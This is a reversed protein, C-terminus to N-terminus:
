DLGNLRRRLNERLDRIGLRPSGSGVSGSVARSAAKAKKVTQTQTKIQTAAELKGALSSFVPDGKVVYNYATELIEQPSGAQQQTLASVIPAMKEELQAATQADTATFLPKSQMFSQVTALNQQAVYNQQQENIMAQIKSEAVREAEERTLYEPTEPEPPYYGELQGQSAAYLDDIRLGYGDLWELATQIPNDKMALDWEISRETLKEPTLGLEQYEKEHKQYVKHVGETEARMRDVEARKRDYEAQTEFARRSLYAQLVHANEATPNLFAEREAKNMDRPPAVARPVNAIEEGAQAETQQSETEIEREVTVRTPEVSTDAKQAQLEDGMDFSKELAGRINLTSEHGNSETEVTNEDM